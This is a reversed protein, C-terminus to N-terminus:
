VLVGFVWCFVPKAHCLTTWEFYAEIPVLQGDLVAPRPNMVRRLRRAHKLNRITDEGRVPGIDFPEQQFGALRQQL